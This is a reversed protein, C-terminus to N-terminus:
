RYPSGIGLSELLSVELSEMATAEDPQQHDHGLLHLVGHIVLHAWHAEVSKGQADAEAAVLPACIVIDGLLPLDIESPLKAPFSLVNTATDQGRYRANLQRSEQRDVIRITLVANACEALATRVWREIQSDAPLQESATARQVQLEITMATV